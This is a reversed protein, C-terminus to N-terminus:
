KSLAVAPAPVATPKAAKAGNYVEVTGSIEGGSEVVLNAYRCTGKVKGTARIVLKRRVTLEGQFQGAIEAEDVEASGKFLGCDAIEISGADMLNAEVTGEVVLKDCANIAGSLSIERGVILKKVDTEAPKRAPASPAAPAAASEPMRRPLDPRLPTAQPKNIM